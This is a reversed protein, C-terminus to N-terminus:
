IKVDRVVVEEIGARKEKQGIGNGQYDGKAFTVSKFYESGGYAFQIYGCNGM